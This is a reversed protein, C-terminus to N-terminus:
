CLVGTVKDTVAFSCMCLSNAPAALCRGRVPSSVEPDLLFQLKELSSVVDLGAHLLLVETCDPSLLQPVGLPLSSHTSPGQSAPTPAPVRGEAKRLNTSLALEDGGEKRAEGISVACIQKNERCYFVSGM